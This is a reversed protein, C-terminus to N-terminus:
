RGFQLYNDTAYKEFRQLLAINEKELPTLEKEIDGYMPVYWAEDNFFQRATKNKFTFGHRAYIANRLIELDLKQLNKLQKETLKQTSANLKYIAQSSYRQKTVDYENSKGEDDTYKQKMNKYNEWDVLGIDDTYDDLKKFNNNPNYKFVRSTLLLERKTVKLKKDNALWIGKISDQGKTFNIKFVGDYKDDGPENLQVYLTSDTEKLTGEFPRINGSVISTGYVKNSPDIKDIKLNLLTNYTFGEDGEFESAMFEGVWNGYLHKYAPNDPIEKTSITDIKTTSDEVKVVEKKTDKCSFVLLSVTIILAIKKM